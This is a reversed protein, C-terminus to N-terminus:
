REPTTTPRAWAYASGGLRPAGTLLRRWQLAARWAGPDRALRPVVQGADRGEFLFVAETDTFFVEHRELGREAPDFPPGASVLARAQEVTDEKLPVVVVVREFREARELTLTALLDALELLMGPGLVDLQLTPASARELVLTPRDNLREGAGRGIRVGLVETYFLERRSLQGEATAGELRLGDPELVVKGSAIAGGRERWIAAYSEAHGRSAMQRCHRDRAGLDDALVGIRCDAFVGIVVGQAADGGETKLRNSAPM